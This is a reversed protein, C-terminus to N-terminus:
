VALRVVLSYKQHRAVVISYIHVLNPTSLELRKGKLACVFLCVSAVSRGVGRRNTVLWDYVYWVENDHAIGSGERGIISEVLVQLWADARDHARRQM